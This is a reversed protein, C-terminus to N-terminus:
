AALQGSKFGAVRALPVGVLLTLLGAVAGLIFLEKTTM